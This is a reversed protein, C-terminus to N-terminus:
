KVEWWKITGIQWGKKNIDYENYSLTEGVPFELKIPNKYVVKEDRYTVSNPWRWSNKILYEPTGVRQETVLVVLFGKEIIYVGKFNDEGNWGYYEITNDANINFEPCWSPAGGPMPYYRNVLDKKSLNPKSKANEFVQISEINAKDVETLKSNVDKSQPKYWDFQKFHTKLDDSQFILGHKAFIANRLLRLEKKDLAALATEPIGRDLLMLSGNYIVRKGASFGINPMYIESPAFDNDDFILSVDNAAFNQEFLYREKATEVPVSEAVCRVSLKHSKGITGEGTVSRYWAQEEEANECEISGCKMASWWRTDSPVAAFGYDGYKGGVMKDLRYLEERGPLRWGSPCITKAKEWDYLEAISEAMWTQSGIKITKGEYTLSSNAKEGKEECALFTFATVISVATLLALKVKNM